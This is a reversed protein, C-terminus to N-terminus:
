HDNDFQNAADIFSGTRAYTHIFERCWDQFLALMATVSSPSDDMLLPAKISCRMAEGYGGHTVGIRGAMGIHIGFYGNYTFGLGTDPDFYTLHATGDADPRILANDIEDAPM